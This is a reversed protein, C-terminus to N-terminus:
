RHYKNTWYVIYVTGLVTPGLWAVMGPLAQNVVLFATVAAIYAGTMKGLHATIAKKAPPSPKRYRLLDNVAFAGGILGFITLVLNLKQSIVIPLAVMFVGTLLMGISIGWDAYTPSNYRLQLSRYGSLTLYLSFIGIALLFPSYHSPILAVTIATLATVLMSYIFWKGWKKHGNSGKKLLLPLLGFCLAMGGSIAHIYILTTIM